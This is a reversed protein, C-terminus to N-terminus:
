PRSYYVGDITHLEVNSNFYGTYLSNWQSYTGNFLIYHLSDCSDLAGHGLNQLDGPLYIAELDDCDAFAYVGIHTVSTPIYIGRLAKCGSFAYDGIRTVTDPLIVTTLTSAGSFAYDAIATVTQGNVSSPIELEPGGAYLEEHFTLEGNEVTFWAQNSSDPNTPAGPQSSSGPILFFLALGSVIMLGLALFAPWLRGKPAPTPSEPIGPTAPMDPEAPVAAMEDAPAEAAIDAPDSLATDPDNPLANVEPPLEEAPIISDTDPQLPEIPQLAETEVLRTGCQHCFLHNEDCLASCNPCIM